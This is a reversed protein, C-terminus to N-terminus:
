VGTHDRFVYDPCQMNRLPSKKQTQVAALKHQSWRNEEGNEIGTLRSRKGLAWTNSRNMNTGEAGGFGRGRAKQGKKKPKQDPLKVRGGL